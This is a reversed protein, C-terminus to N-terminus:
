DGWFAVPEGDWLKATNGDLTLYNGKRIRGSYEKESKDALNPVMTGSQGYSDSSKVVRGLKRAFVTKGTNRTVIFFYPIKMSYQFSADLIDGPKFNRADYKESAM